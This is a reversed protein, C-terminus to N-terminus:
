AQDTCTRQYPRNPMIKRWEDKTLNRGAIACAHALLNDANIDWLLSPGGPYITAIGDRLVVVSVDAPGHAIDIVASTTSPTDVSWIAAKGDAGSLIFRGDPTFTVHKVPFPAAQWRRQVLGTRTDAVAIDGGWTGVAVLRGDPSFTPSYLGGGTPVAIAAIRRQRVLDVLEVTNVGALALTHGDPSRQAPAVPKATRYTAWPEPAGDSANWQRLSQSTDVTTITRGDASIAVTLDSLVRGPPLNITFPRFRRATLDLARVTLDGSEDQHIIAATQGADDMDVDADRFDPGELVYSGPGDQPTLDDVELVGTSPYLSVLLTGARNTRRSYFDEGTLGAGRAALPVPRAV